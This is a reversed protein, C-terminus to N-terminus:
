IAQKGIDGVDRAAAHKKVQGDDLISIGHLDQSMYETFRKFEVKNEFCYVDQNLVMTSGKIIFGKDVAVLAAMICAFLEPFDNLVGM